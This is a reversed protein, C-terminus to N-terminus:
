PLRKLLDVFDDPPHLVVGDDTSTAPLQTLQGDRWWYVTPSLPGPGAHHMQPALELLVNLAELARIDVLEHWILHHRTPVTVLAGHSTPDDLLRDLLLLRSATFFSEAHLMHVPVHNPTRVPVPAGIPEAAVRTVALAFLEDEPIAWDLAEAVGVTRVTTPLDLALVAVLGAAVERGIVSAGELDEAPYLRIRLLALAEHPDEPVESGSLSSLLVTVHQSILPQWDALPAPACKQALTTLGLVGSPRRLVVTERDPALRAPVRRRHLETMVAYVFQRHSRGDPFPSWAPVRDNFLGM